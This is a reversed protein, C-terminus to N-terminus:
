KAFNLCYGDETAPDAAPCYTYGGANYIQILRLIESLSIHGDPPNYDSAHPTCVQDGTGPAFGDETSEDCYYEGSNFLQIARLIETFDVSNNGDQDAHFTPTDPLLGGPDSTADITFKFRTVNNTEDSELIDNLSDSEMECWYTGWHLGTIDVWQFELNKSYIDTYGVSLGQLGNHNSNLRENSPPICGQTIQQTCDPLEPPNDSHLQTSTINVFEKLGERIIPGVGDGPLILRVRYNAWGLTQMKATANDWRFDSLTRARTSGDSRQIIQDVYEQNNGADQGNKIIRFEGLGIDPISTRFKFFVRGPHNLHTGIENDGESAPGYFLVDPLLDTVQASAM